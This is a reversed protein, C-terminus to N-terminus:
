RRLYPKRQLPSYKSNDVLNINDIDIFLLGRCSITILLIESIAQGAVYVKEM